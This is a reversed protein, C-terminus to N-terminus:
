VKVYFSIFFGLIIIAEDAEKQLAQRLSKGPLMKRSSCFSSSVMQAKQEFDGAV